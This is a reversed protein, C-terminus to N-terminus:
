HGKPCICFSKPSSPSLIIDYEIQNRPGNKIYVKLIPAQPSVAVRMTVNMKETAYFIINMHRRVCLHVPPSVNPTVWFNKKPPHSTLAVLLKTKVSNLHNGKDNGIYIYLIIRERKEPPEGGGWQNRYPADM